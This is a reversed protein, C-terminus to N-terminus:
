DERQGQSTQYVLLQAWLMSFLLFLCRASQIAGQADATLNPNNQIYRKALQSAQPHTLPVTEMVVALEFLAHGAAAYEFDICLLQNQDKLLNMPSLDFHCYQNAVLCDEMQALWGSAQKILPEQTVAVAAADAEEQPLKLRSLAQETLILYHQMKHRLNLRNTPLPLQQLQKMLVMLLDADADHRSPNAFVLESQIFESLYFRNKPDVYVLQPALRAAAAVKWNDIERQRDVWLEVHPNNIRLVLSTAKHEVHWSQNSLGGELPSLQADEINIGALSLCQAVALPKAPEAGKTSYNDPPL